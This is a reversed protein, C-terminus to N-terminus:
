TMLKKRVRLLSSITGHTKINEEFHHLAQTKKTQPLLILTSVKRKLLIFTKPQDQTPRPNM